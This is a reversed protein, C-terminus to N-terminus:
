DDDSIVIMDRATSQDPSTLPDAPQLFPVLDLCPASDASPQAQHVTAPAVAVQNGTTVVAHDQPAMEIKHSSVSAHTGSSALPETKNKKSRSYTLIRARERRRRETRKNVLPEPSGSSRDSEYYNLWASMVAYEKEEVPKRKCKGKRRKEPAAFASAKPRIGPATPLITNKEQIDERDHQRSAKKSSSRGLLKENSPGMLSFVEKKEPAGLDQKLKKHPDAPQSCAKQAIQLEHWDGPKKSTNTKPSKADNRREASSLPNNETAVLAHKPKTTGQPVSPLVSSKQLDDPKHRKGAKKSTHRGPSEADSYGEVSAPAQKAMAVLGHNQNPKGQAAAPLVSTEGVMEPSNRKGAKKSSSSGQPKGNSGSGLCLHKDEANPETSKTSWELQLISSSSEQINSMESPLTLLLQAGGAVKKQSPAELKMTKEYTGSCDNKHNHWYCLMNGCSANIDDNEICCADSPPGQNTFRLLTDGCSRCKWVIGKLSRPEEPIFDHRTTINYGGNPRQHDEVCCSNIADMWARFAPGHNSDKKHHKVYIIAHIMYHLLANKRDTCSRYKLFSESLIITNQQKSFSCSGFSRRAFPLSSTWQVTFGAAALAGQFYLSDYHHFLDGVDPNPDALDAEAVADEMAMAGGGLLGILRREPVAGRGRVWAGAGGVPSAEGRRAECRM